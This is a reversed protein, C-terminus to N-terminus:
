DKEYLLDNPNFDEDNEEIAEQLENCLKYMEKRFENQEKISWKTYPLMIIVQKM